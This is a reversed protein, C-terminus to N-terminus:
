KPLFKIVKAEAQEEDQVVHVEAVVQWDHAAPYPSEFPKQTIQGAPVYRLEPTQM